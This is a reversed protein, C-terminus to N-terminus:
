KCVFHTIHSTSCETKLCQNSEVALHRQFAPSEDFYGPSSYPAPQIACRGATPLVARQLNCPNLIQLKECKQAWVELVTGCGDVTVVAEWAPVHPISPVWLVWAGAPTPAWGAWPAWQAWTAWLAPVSWSRSHVRVAGLLPAVWFDLLLPHSIPLIFYRQFFIGGFFVQWFPWNHCSTYKEHHTHKHKSCKTPWSAPRM